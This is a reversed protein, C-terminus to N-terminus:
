WLNGKELTEWVEPGAGKQPVPSGKALLEQNELEGPNATNPNGMMRSPNKPKNLRSGVTGHGLNQSMQHPKMLRKPRPDTNGDLNSTTPLPNSSKPQNTM